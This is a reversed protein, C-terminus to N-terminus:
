ALLEDLTNPDLAALETFGGVYVDGIFIQPVTRRGTKQLMEQFKEPDLDVRLKHISTVGKSALLREAASCYPCHASTYMTVPKM